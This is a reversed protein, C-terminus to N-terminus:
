NEHSRWCHYGLGKTNLRCGKWIPLHVCLLIGRIGRIMILLLVLPLALFILFFLPVLPIWVLLRIGTSPSILGSCGLALTIIGLRLLPLIWVKASIFRTGITTYVSMIGM